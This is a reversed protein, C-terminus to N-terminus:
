IATYINMHCRTLGMAYLMLTKGINLNVAESTQSGVSNSVVCHYIGEDSKQVSPITLTSSNAGTFREVDCPQWVGSGDGTKIEWQYNLPETGSAQITFTLTDGPVADKLQQPHATIRPRRAVHISVCRNTMEFKLCRLKLILGLADFCSRM